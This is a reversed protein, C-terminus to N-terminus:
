LITDSEKNSLVKSKKSV